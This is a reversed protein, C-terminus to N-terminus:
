ISSGLCWFARHCFRDCPALAMRGCVVPQAPLIDEMGGEAAGSLDAEARHHRQGAPYVGGLVLSYPLTWKGGLVSYLVVLLYSVVFTLGVFLIAKKLNGAM